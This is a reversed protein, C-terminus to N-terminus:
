MVAGGCVPIDAGTIFEGGESCLFTVARAVDDPTTLRRLPTQMAQVKRLREPLDAISDTETIGPSVMNVRIGSAGFEAALSRTLAKLASKAVVFGTWHPPPVTSTLTSGINVIRGSNQELMGGIVAKCCNFAGRLHIDLQAQMEEWTTQMAPRPLFPSGANNVLVDVPKGFEQRARETARLVADPDAVDAQLAIARGGAARITRCVEEAEPESRLYNVVVAAGAAGIALATAAGIGRASGTILALRESLPLDRATKRQELVLISGEGQMVMKGDQNLAKIEVALTRTGMSKHTVTLTLDVRDGIFVPALWQFNQRAWLAGAGPLRMGILTSVYSAVLMGHAVRRQFTTRSAFAPDMHLPNYDGSVSAFAEIEQATVIKSLHASDGTQIQSFELAAPDCAGGPGPPTSVLHPTSSSM